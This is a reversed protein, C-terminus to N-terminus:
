GSAEILNPFAHDDRRRNRIIEYNAQRSIEGIASDCLDLSLPETVSFRVQASPILPKPTLVVCVMGAHGALRQVRYWDSSQTRRLERFDNDRLDVLTMELNEDRLLADMAKIAQKTTECRIWLLHELLAPPTSQPDFRDSGDVLAAFRGERRAADLLHLLFSQGGSSPNPCVAECLVGTSLGGELAQDLRWIGTKLISREVGKVRSVGLADFDEEFANAEPDRSELRAPESREHAGAMIANWHARHPSDVGGILRLNPAKAARENDLAKGPFIKREVTRGSYAGTCSM